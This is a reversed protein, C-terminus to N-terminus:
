MGSGDEVPLAERNKDWGPEPRIGYWQDRRRVGSEFAMLCTSLYTALIFDPTNSENERTCRNILYELERRFNPKPLEVEEDLSTEPEGPMLAVADALMPYFEDDNKVRLLFDAWEDSHLYLVPHDDDVYLRIMRGDHPEATLKSM